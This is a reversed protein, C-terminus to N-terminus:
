KTYKYFLNTYPSDIRIYTLTKYEVSLLKFDFKGRANFYRMRARKKSVKKITGIQFLDNKKYLHECIIPIKLKKIQKMMNQLTDLHFDLQKRKQFIKKKIHEKKLIHLYFKENGTHKVENIDSKRLVVFGDYDFDRMDNMLVFDKNQEFIFGEFHTLNYGETSIYIKVFNENKIHKRLLKNLKLIYEM